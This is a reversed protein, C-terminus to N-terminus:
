DSGGALRSDAKFLTARPVQRFSLRLRLQLNLVAPELSPTNLSMLAAQNAAETYDGDHRRSSDQM